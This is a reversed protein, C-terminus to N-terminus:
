NLNPSRTGSARKPPSKDSRPAKTSGRNSPRGRNTPMAAHASEIQAQTFGKHAQLHARDKAISEAKARVHAFTRSSYQQGSAQLLTEIRTRVATPVSLLAASALEPEVTLAYAPAPLSVMTRNYARLLDDFHSILKNPDTCQIRKFELIRQDYEDTNLSLLAKYTLHASTKLSAVGPGVHHVGSPDILQLASLSRNIRKLAEGRAAARLSLYLHEEIAIEDDPMTNGPLRQDTVTYTAPTNATAAVQEDFTYTRDPATMIEIGVDKYKHQVLAQAENEWEEFDTGDKFKPFALLDSKRNITLLAQALEAAM